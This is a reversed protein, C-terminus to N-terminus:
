ISTVSQSTAVPCKRIKLFRRLNKITSPIISPWIRSASCSQTYKERLQKNVEQIVPEHNEIIFEGNLKTLISERIQQIEKYLARCRKIVVPDSVKYVAALNKFNIKKDKLAKDVVRQYLKITVHNNLRSCQMLFLYISLNEQSIEYALDELVRFDFPQPLLAHTYKLTNEKNFMLHDLSFNEPCISNEGWWRFLNAIPILIAQDILNVETNEPTLWQDRAVAPTLKEILAFCGDPSIASIEPMPIGWQHEQAVVEKIPWYVRNNGIAIVREPDGKIEFILTTDFGEEKEGISEGLVYTTSAIELSDGAQLGDRWALHEPENMQLLELGNQLLTTQLSILSGGFGPKETLIGLCDLFLGVPIKHKKKNLIEIWNELQHKEEASLEQERAIKKLLPIPLPRHLYGEFDILLQTEQLSETEDGYSFLPDGTEVEESYFTQFFSTLSEGGREDVFSTFPKTSRTWHTIQKRAAHIETEDVEEGRIRQDLYAQYTKTHEVIAPLRESFVTQTKHMLKVLRDTKLDKGFIYHIAQYFWKWLRGWGKGSYYVRKSFLSPVLVEEPSSSKKCASYIEQLNTTIGTM